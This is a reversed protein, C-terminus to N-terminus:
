LRCLHRRGDSGVFTDSRVNYSRYTDLCAQIHARENNRNASTVAGAIIAGAALGFIGAAVADGNGNNNQRYYGHPAAMAPASFAVAALAALFIPKLIMLHGKQDNTAIPVGTLVVFELQHLGCHDNKDIGNRGWTRAPAAALLTRPIQVGDAYEDLQQKTINAGSNVM